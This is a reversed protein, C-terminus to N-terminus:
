TGELESSMCIESEAPVASGMVSLGHTASVYICFKLGGPSTALADAVINLIPLVAHM